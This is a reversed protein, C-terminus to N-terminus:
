TCYHGNWVFIVSQFQLSDPSLSLMNRSNVSILPRMDSTVKWPQLGATKGPGTLLSYRTGEGSCVVVARGGGGGGCWWGGMGESSGDSSYADSPRRHWRPGPWPVPSISFVALQLLWLQMGSALHWYPWHCFCCILRTDMCVLTTQLTRPYHNTASKGSETTFLSVHICAM